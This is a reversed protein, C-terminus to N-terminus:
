LELHRPGWAIRLREGGDAAVLSELLVRVRIAEDAAGDPRSAVAHPDKCRGDFAPVEHGGGPHRVAGEDARVALHQGLEHPRREVAGAEESGADGRAPRQEAGVCRTDVAADVEVRGADDDAPPDAAVAALVDDAGRDEVAKALEAPPRERRPDLRPPGSACAATCGNALSRSSKSRSPARVTSISPSYRRAKGPWGTSRTTGSSTRRRSIDSGNGSCPWAGSSISSNRRRSIMGQGTAIPCRRDSAQTLEGGAGIDIRASETALVM